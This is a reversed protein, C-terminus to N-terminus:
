KSCGYKHKRSRDNKHNYENHGLIMDVKIGAYAHRLEIGKYRKFKYYETYYNKLQEKDTIFM